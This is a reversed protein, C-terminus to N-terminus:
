HTISASQTERRFSFDAKIKVPKGDVELVPHALFNIPGGAPGPDVVLDRGRSLEIRNAPNHGFYYTALRKNKDAESVDVPWWKGDAHFEAWCHYGDIGGDDRESPISAGIAFRAPIGISRALAIFYAHFDTCNGHKADCAFEADGNGWGEGNKAYRMKEIVHDYLARARMLDTPKGKTVEKAIQRFKEDNPVLKEPALFTKPSGSGAYPAKEIRKVDYKVEVISGADEPVLTVFLVKNGHAKEDLERHSAPAHLEDVTVTQFADTQALPIWLKAPGSLAPVKVRYDFEFRDEGRIVGLLADPAETVPVRIWTGDDKQDWAYLPQGDIKHVTTETVTAPGPLGKMFFDVDYVPGDTGVLDVCAFQVGGGLDALYETHVRVLKLQLDHGEYPVRFYGDGAKTAALIHDQIAKEIQEIPVRLAPPKQSALVLSPLLAALALTAKM